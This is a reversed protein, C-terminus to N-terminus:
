RKIKRLLLFILVSVSTDLGMCGSVHYLLLLRNNFFLGDLKVLTLKTIEERANTYKQRPKFSICDTKLNSLAELGSYLIRARLSPYLFTATVGKHVEAM